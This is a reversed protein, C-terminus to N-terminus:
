RTEDLTVISLVESSTDRRIHYSIRVFFQGVFYYSTWLFQRCSAWSDGLSRAFRRALQYRALQWAVTCFTITRCTKVLDITHLQFNLQLCYTFFIHVWGHRSRTAQMTRSTDYVFRGRVLQPFPLPHVQIIVVQQLSINSTWLASVAWTVRVVGREPFIKMPLTPSAVTLWHVLNSTELNV